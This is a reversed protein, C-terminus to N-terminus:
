EAGRGGGKGERVDSGAGGGGGGKEGDRGVTTSLTCNIVHPFQSHEKQKSRRRGGRMIRSTATADQIRSDNDRSTTFVANGPSIQQLREEAAKHAVCHESMCLCYMARM